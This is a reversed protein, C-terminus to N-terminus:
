RAQCGCYYGRSCFCAGGHARVQERHRDEHRVQLMVERKRKEDHSMLGTGECTYCSAKAELHSGNRRGGGECDHCQPWHHYSRFERKSAVRSLREEEKDHEAVQARLFEEERPTLGM